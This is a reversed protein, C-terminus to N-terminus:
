SILTLPGLRTPRLIAAKNLTEYAEQGLREVHAKEPQYSHPKDFTLALGEAQELIARFLLKDFLNSGKKLGDVYFNHDALNKQIKARRSSALKSLLKEYKSNKNEESM